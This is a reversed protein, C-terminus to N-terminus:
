PTLSQSTVKAPALAGGISLSTVDGERLFLRCSQSAFICAWSSTEHRPCSFIGWLGVANSIDLSHFCKNQFRVPYAPLCCPSAPLTHWLPPPAQTSSTLGHQTGPSFRRGLFAMSSRRPTIHCQIMPRGYHDLGPQYLSTIYLAMGREPHRGRPVVALLRRRHMETIHSFYYEYLLGWKSLGHRAHICLDLRANSQFLNSISCGHMQVEFPSGIQCTLSISQCADPCGVLSWLPFVFCLGVESPAM